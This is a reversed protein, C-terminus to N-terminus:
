LEAALELSWRTAGGDGFNAARPHHRLKRLVSPVGEAVVHRAEVLLLRERLPQRMAVLDGAVRSVLEKVLRSVDRLGVSVLM